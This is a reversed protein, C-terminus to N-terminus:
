HGLGLVRRRERELAHREPRHAVHRALLDEPLREIRARVEVREADRHVFRERALERELVLRLLLEDELDRLLLRDRDARAVRAERALELLDDVLEELLLALVAVPGGVLEG